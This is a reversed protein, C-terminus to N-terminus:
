LTNERMPILNRNQLRNSPPGQSTLAQSLSEDPLQGISSAATVTSSVIKTGVIRSIQAVLDRLLDAQASLEEAISATEEAYSATEQISHNMEDVARLVQEVSLAQQSSSTKIEQTLTDIEQIRDTQESSSAEIESIFESFQINRELIEELAKVGLAALQGGEQSKRNSEQILGGIERAAKKSNEALTSVEDAVVAFGKGHSGARAAEIAANTALMKTQQTISDIVEIIASIRDSGVQIEQMSQTIDNGASTGREAALRAEHSYQTSLKTKEDNQKVMQTMHVVAEAVNSASNSNDRVQGSIESLSASTEEVSVAQQSAASAVRNSSHAIQQSAEALQESASNLNEVLQRLLRTNTKVLVYTLVIALVIATATAGLLLQTTFDGLQQVRELENEVTADGLEEVEETLELLNTAKQDYNLKLLYLEKFSTLARSFVQEHQALQAALAQSYTEDSDPITQYFLPHNILESMRSRLNQLSEDLRAEYTSLDEPKSLILQYFYFRELLFISAEMGGDAASWRLGLGSDWTIPTDPNNELEEVAGDGFEEVQVMLSRFTEFSARLQRDYEQFEENKALIPDRLDQYGSVQKKLNTIVGAELLESEFVRDFAQQGFILAKQIQQEYREPEKGQVIELIANMQQQVAITGEMAGDATDWAPGTVYALRENLQTIGYYGASGTVLILIVLTLFSLTLKQGITLNNM